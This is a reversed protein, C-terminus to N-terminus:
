FIICDKNKRKKYKKGFKIESEMMKAKLEDKNKTLCKDVLNYIMDEIGEYTKCSTRGYYDLNNELM